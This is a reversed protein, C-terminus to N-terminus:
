GWGVCTCRREGYCYYNMSWHDEIYMLTTAL